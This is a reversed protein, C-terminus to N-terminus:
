FRILVKGARGPESSARVASVIDAADFTSDVPLTLTGDLIRAILEGFM